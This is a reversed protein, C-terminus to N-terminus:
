SEKCVFLRYFSCEDILLDINLEWHIGLRTGPASSMVFFFVPFARGQLVQKRVSTFSHFLLCISHSM